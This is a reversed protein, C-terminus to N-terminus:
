SFCDDSEDPTSFSRERYCYLINGYYFLVVFTTRTYNFFLNFDFIYGWLRPKKTNWELIVKRYPHREM